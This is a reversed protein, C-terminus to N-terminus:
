FAPLEGLPIIGLSVQGNRITLPLTTADDGPRTDLASIMPGFRRIMDASEPNFGAVLESFQQVNSITLELNGSMRGDAAVQVPGALELSSTEDLEITVRHLMADFPGHLPTFPIQLLDSRRSLTAEFALAKANLGALLSNRLNESYAAVDLDAGNRRAHATIRDAQVALRQTLGTGDINFSTNRAEISGRDLGDSVAQVSAKLLQWDARLILGSADLVFPGDVEAVAHQPRYVQAASRFAGATATIGEATNAYTLTECFLGVRFPYGRVDAQTCGATADPGTIQALTSPLHDEIRAAFFFWGITWLLVAAVIAGALWAFKRSAPSSVNASPPM